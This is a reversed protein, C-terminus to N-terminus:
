RAYDARKLSIGVQRVTRAESEGAPLIDFSTVQLQSFPNNDADTVTWVLYEPKLPHVCVKRIENLIEVERFLNADRVVSVIIAFEIDPLHDENESFTWDAVGILDQNPLENVEQRADWSMYSLDTTIGSENCKQVVEQVKNVLTAYVAMLDFKSAAM